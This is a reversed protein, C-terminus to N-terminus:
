NTDDENVRPYAAIILTRINFKSQANLQRNLSPKHQVIHLLEKMELKFNSEAQDLIEVNEYDMTHGECEIEHQKCASSEKSQHEKLRHCLIRQTKGIYTADCDSRSCKIRYVILARSTIQRVRDKFPFFKGIENPTRFAVNFDVQPFFKNVHTKLRKTFGEVRQSVYPLVMYRKQQEVTEVPQQDAQPPQESERQRNGIFKKIEDEVVQEPYENKAL